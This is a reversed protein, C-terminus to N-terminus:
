EVSFLSGIDSSLCQAIRGANIITPNYGQKMVKSYVYPQKLGTEKALQYGSISQKLMIDPINNRITM